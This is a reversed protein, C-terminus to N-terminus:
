LRPSPTTRSSSHCPAVPSFRTPGLTTQPSTLPHNAAALAALLDSNRFSTSVPYASRRELSNSPTSQPTTPTTQSTVPLEQDQFSSVKHSDKPVAEWPSKPPPTIPISQNVPSPSTLPSWGRKPKPPEEQHTRRNATSCARPQGSIAPDYTPLSARRKTPETNSVRENRELHMTRLLSAPIEWTTRQAPRPAQRGWTTRQAPKPAPKSSSPIKPTPDANLLDFQADTRSALRSPM